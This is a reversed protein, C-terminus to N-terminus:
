AGSRWVLIAVGGEFPSLKGTLSTGGEPFLSLMDGGALKQEAMRFAERDFKGRVVPFAGIWRIIAGFIPIKFLFDNAMFWCTRNFAIRVVPPDAWSLHNGALIVPGTRPINEVGKARYGGTAF